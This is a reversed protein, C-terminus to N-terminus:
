QYLLRIDGSVYLLHARLVFFSELDADRTRVEVTLQLFEEVLPYIFLILIRQSKLAQSSDWRCYRAPIPGKKQHYTSVSFCWLGVRAQAVTLFASGDSSFPLVTDRDDAFYKIGLKRGDM